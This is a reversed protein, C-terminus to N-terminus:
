HSLCQSRNGNGGYPQTTRWESPPQHCDNFLIYSTMLAKCSQWVTSNSEQHDNMSAKISTIMSNNDTLKNHVVTFSSFASLKSFLNECISPIAPWPKTAVLHPTNKVPKAHQPPACPRHDRGGPVSPACQDYAPSQQHSVRCSAWSWVPADAVARWYRLM